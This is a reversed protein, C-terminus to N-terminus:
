GIAGQPCSFLKLGIAVISYLDSSCTCVTYAVQGERTCQCAGAWDSWWIVTWDWGWTVDRPVSQFVLDRSGYSSMHACCMILFNILLSGHPIGLWTSLCGKWGSKWKCLTHVHTHTHTHTVPKSTVIPTFCPTPPMCRRMQTAKKWPRRRLWTVRVGVMSTWIGVCVCMSLHSLM